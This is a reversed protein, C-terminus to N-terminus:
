HYCHSLMHPHMINNSYVTYALERLTCDWLMCQINLKLLLLVAVRSSYMTAITEVQFFTFVM